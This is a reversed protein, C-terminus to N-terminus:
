KRYHSMLNELHSALQELNGIQDAIQHASDVNRSATGRIEEMHCHISDISSSQTSVVDSVQGCRTGIQEFLARNEALIEQATAISSSSSKSQVIISNIESTANESSQTLEDMIAQIEKTSNATRHALTRVEDAVVAFGRGQDGARAAEIAANLALLNTQDSIAQITALTGAITETNSTLSAIVSAVDNIKNALQNIEVQSHQIVDAIKKGNTSINQSIDNAKDANAVVATAGTSVRELQEAVKITSETGLEVDKMTSEADLKLKSSVQRLNIGNEAVENFVNELKEVFKNYGKAVMAVEKQGNTSLRYSLDSDGDGLRQFLAALEDIPKSVSRSMFNTFIIGMLVIVLSWIVIKWIAKNISAFLEEKPIEAVLYWDMNPIYGTAVLVSKGKHVLETVSFAQKKLLRADLNQGYHESLTVANKLAPDNHLQIFGKNDLLYVFGTDELQYNKIMEVVDDFSRATGSLGRGDTQQFNVFLNTKGSNSSTHMSVMNEAKSKVYSFYWNDAKGPQLVRKFGDQNWYKNTQKDAFSVSSLDHRLAIDTLKDILLADDNEAKDKSVWDHIFPDNAIQSAITQMQGIQADIDAAVKKVTNPLETTLMRESITTRATYISLTGISIATITVLLTLTLVIKHKISLTLM